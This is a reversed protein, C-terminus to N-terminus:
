EISKCSVKPTGLTFPDILAGPVKLEHLLYVSILVFSTNRCCFFKVCFKYKKAM